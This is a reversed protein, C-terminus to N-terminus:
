FTDDPWQSKVVKGIIQCNGNIPIMEFRPNLPELYETEGERILRKFTFENNMMRAICFDGFNVDQEPDVLILMGEPFSPRGGQPATMSHGEVELWFASDSAKKATPIWAYADKETYSNSNETFTGAQVKTLLPYMYRDGNSVIKQESVSNFMRRIEKALLPSFDDVSVELAEALKVANEVNIANVGNLLQAVASQGMGIADGLSEQSLGLEKKKAEFIAKLRVADAKQEDTIPKKKM